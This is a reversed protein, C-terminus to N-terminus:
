EGKDEGEAPKEEGEAAESPAAAEAGEEGELLEEGEAPAEEEVRPAVVSVVSTEPDDRLEVGEPLAIDSVHLSDGINLSSVDLTLEDPIARPLCEVALARHAHDMIGGELEVGPPTGVLHIPVEVEVTETLDVEYLDAHLYTGRAPERQLEKVLVVREGAAGGAVQLDFLTNMGAESRTLARELPQPDLTVSQAPKGRGYLVGPIRGSQRLKRAVGKGSENRLEVQLVNDAV